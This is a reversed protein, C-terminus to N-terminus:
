SNLHIISLGYIEKIKGFEVKFGDELYYACENNGDYYHLDPNIM